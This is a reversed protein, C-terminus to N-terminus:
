ATVQRGANHRAATVPAGALNGPRLGCDDARVDADQALAVSPGLGREAFEHPPLAVRGNAGGFAVTIAPLAPKGRLFDLLQGPDESKLWPPEHRTTRVAVPM